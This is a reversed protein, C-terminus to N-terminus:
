DSPSFWLYLFLIVLLALAGLLLYFKYKRLRMVRSIQMSGREFEQAQEAIEFSEMELKNMNATQAMMKDLNGKMLGATKNITDQASSLTEFSGPNNYKYALEYMFRKESPIIITSRPNSKVEQYVVYFRTKLDELLHFGSEESYVSNTLVMFVISNEDAECLWKGYISSKSFVKEITGNQYDRLTEITMRKFDDHFAETKKDPIYSILIKNDSMRGIAMYKINEVSM